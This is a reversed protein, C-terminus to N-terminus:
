IVLMVISQVIIAVLLAQAMVRYVKLEEIEERQRLVEDALDIMHDEERFRDIPRQTRIYDVRAMAEDLPTM